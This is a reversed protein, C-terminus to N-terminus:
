RPRSFTNMDGFAALRTEAVTFAVGPLTVLQKIQPHHFARQAAEDDMTKIESEILALQRLHRGLSEREPLDIALTELWHLNTPSFLDGGPSPILRQPLVAHIPNERAQCQRPMVWEGFYFIKIQLL